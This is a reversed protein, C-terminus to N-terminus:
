RRREKEIKQLKWLISELENEYYLHGILAMIPPICFMDYANTFLGMSTLTRHLRLAETYTNPFLPKSVVCNLQAIKSRFTSLRQVHGIKRRFHRTFPRFTWM